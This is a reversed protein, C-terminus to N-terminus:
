EGNQNHNLVFAIGKRVELDVREKYNKPFSKIFPKGMDDVNIGNNRSATDICERCQKFARERILREKESIKNKLDALLGIGDAHLLAINQAWSESEELSEGQAQIRGRHNM